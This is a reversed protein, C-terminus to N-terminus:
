ATAILVDSAWPIRLGEPGEWSGLADIMGRRLREVRPEFATDSLDFIGMLVEDDAVRMGGTLHVDLLHEVSEFQATRVQKELTLISFGAGNALTQLRELGGFSWAHIPAFAEGLHRRFCEELAGAGQESAASWVSVGLLGGPRLVRRMEAFAAEPDGVYQVVQHCLLVDVSDAELGTQEISGEVVATRPADHFKRHLVELMFSTPDLATARGRSGVRALALEALLGTGAGADLVRDGPRALAALEVAFPWLTCPVWCDEYMEAPGRGDLFKELRTM